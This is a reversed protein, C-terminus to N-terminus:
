SSRGFYRSHAEALTQQVLARRLEAPLDRLTQFLITAADTVQPNGLQLGVENRWQQVREWKKDQSDTGLQLYELFSRLVRAERVSYEALEWVDDFSHTAHPM